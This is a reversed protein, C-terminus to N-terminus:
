EAEKGTLAPLGIGKNMQYQHGIQLVNNILWYLVLGSPFGWFMVTFVIPMMVLMMKAQRPDGGTPSMKQQIFMSVGMILPLGRMPFSAGLYPVAFPLTFLTDPASLDTIWLTFPARWMEVSGLLANYLALFIPLQVFMPLCGGLPNVGHRKYLEMTEQNAKQPNNKHKDKIALIKPQLTQMAQMSKNSKQTLPYFAVKQLVTIIIIAVGYNGVFGNLFRIFYLVPRALFDFWGLNVLERLDHGADRLRTVEKPGAYIQLSHAAEGGAPIKQPPYILGVIPRDEADKAVLGAPGQEAPVLAAAFYTDQLATWSVTGSQLVEETVAAMDPTVRAGDIWAVASVGGFRSNQNTAGARFGPGWQLRVSGQTPVGALNKLRLEVDALYRGPHLVVTKELLIGGQEQFEMVVRQPTGPDVSPREVIRYFGRAGEGGDVSSAFPLPAGDKPPAGVLDVPGNPEQYQKLQWSRVAGGRNTLIVKLLDTELTIMEERKARRLPGVIQPHKVQPGPAKAAPASPRATEPPSERKPAEVEAQPPEAPQQPTPAFFTQYVILVILALVTALIARREM